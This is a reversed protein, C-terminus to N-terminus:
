QVATCRRRSFLHFCSLAHTCQACHTVFIAGFYQSYSAKHHLIPNQVSLKTFNSSLINKVNKKGDEDNAM